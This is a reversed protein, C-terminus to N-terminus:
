RVKAPVMPRGELYDFTIQDPGILGARAGAEIAMNSISMRAEM